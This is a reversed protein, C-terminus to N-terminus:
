SCTLSFRSSVSHLRGGGPHMKLDVSQLEGCNSGRARRSCRANGVSLMDCRFGEAVLRSHAQEFPMSALALGAVYAGFAAENDFIDKGSNPRYSLHLWGGALMAVILVTASAAAAKIVTRRDPM